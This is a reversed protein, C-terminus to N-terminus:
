AGQYNGNFECNICPCYEKCLGSQKPPFNSNAIADELKQVRPLMNQWIGPVDARVFKEKSVHGAEFWFYASQVEELDPSIAFKVAATLALQDYGEKVKGTKWDIVLAKNGKDVQCDVVVRLWVDRDFYECERFDRTLGIKREAVITGGQASHELDEPLTKHREVRLELARHFAQGALMKANQKEPYAKAIKTLFHRRPCTEFSDIASWSWAFPKSV